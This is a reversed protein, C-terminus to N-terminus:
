TVWLGPRRSPRAQDHVWHRLSNPLPLSPGAEREKGKGNENKGSGKGKEGSGRGKSGKSTPGRFDLYPIQPASYADGLPTQLPAGVSIL